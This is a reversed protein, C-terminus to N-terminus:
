LNKQKAVFCCFFITQRVFDKQDRFATEANFASEAQHSNTNTVHSLHFTVGSVQNFFSIYIHELGCVNLSETDRRHPIKVVAVEVM